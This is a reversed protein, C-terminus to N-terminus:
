WPRPSTSGRLGGPLHRRARRPRGGRAARLHVVRAHPRPPLARAPRRPPVPRRPRARLPGRGGARPAAAGVVPGEARELPQRGGPMRGADKAQPRRTPGARAWPHDDLAGSGCRPWSTSWSAGARRPSAAPWASTTCPARTTSCASCCRASARATRTGRPLGAVVCDATREHKVKWMVRKDQLYPQDAPKAMVGDFGAGEFRTFWDEAVDPDDTMPRSTSAASTATSSGELLAGVSARVARRHPRPRRPGAPRLGRLQGADGRRAQQVRSAAPHLRHQLTDFDLGDETVVVIEGDVVCREPLAAQLLEVLEPFYRTLPRDNRSGLELEDGDRFVICRFGDWKPEYLLGTPRPAGRARGQGADAEGAADRAPGHPQPGTAASPWALVQEVQHVDVVGGRLGGDPGLRAGPELGHGLPPALAVAVPPGEPGLGVVLVGGLQLHRLAQCRVLNSAPQAAM